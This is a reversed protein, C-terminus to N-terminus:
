GGQGEPVLTFIEFARTPNFVVQSHYNAVRRGTLEEVAGV